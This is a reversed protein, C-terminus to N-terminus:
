AASPIGMDRSASRPELCSNIDMKMPTQLAAVAAHPRERDKAWNSRARMVTPTPSAPNVGEPSASIASLKGFDWRPAAVPTTFVPGINRMISPKSMPPQAASRYPQREANM